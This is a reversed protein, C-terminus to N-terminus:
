SNINYYLTVHGCRGAAGFRGSAALRLAGLGGCADTDKRPPAVIVSGAHILRDFARSLDARSFAQPQGFLAATHEFENPATVLRDPRILNEVAQPPAPAPTRDRRRRDIPRQLEQEFVTENVADLRSVGIDAARPWARRVGTLEEDAAFAPRRRLYGIRANPAGHCAPRPRHPERDLM